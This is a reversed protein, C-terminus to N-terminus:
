DPGRDDDIVIGLAGFVGLALPLVQTSDIVANQLDAAGKLGELTSGHLRVGVLASQSFETATLDCDLFQSQTVRAAYFDSAPLFVHDFLVHDGSIMRLNANDLKTESFLVDSLHAGALDIASMKCNKFEVRTLAADALRAASLDCSEIVTDRIRARFLATGTFRAGVVRSETIELDNASQGSYDGATEVGAWQLDDVLDYSDSATLVRPLRPPLPAITRPDM